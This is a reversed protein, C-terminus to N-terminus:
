DAGVPPDRPAGAEMETETASAVSSETLARASPKGNLPLTVIEPSPGCLTETCADSRAPCVALACTDNVMSEDFGTIVTAVGASPDYVFSEETGIATFTPSSVPMAETVALPLASAYEAPAHRPVSSNASPTLEM